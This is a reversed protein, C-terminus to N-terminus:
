RSTFIGTWYTRLVPGRKAEPGGVPWAVEIRTISGTGAPAGARLGVGVAKRWGTSRGFPVGSDWGRGVDVFWVLGVDVAPKFLAPNLRHEAYAVVRSGLPGVDERYGRVGFEGGIISQVPEYRNARADFRVGGVFTQFRSGGPQFYAQFTGSLQLDRWQPTGDPAADLRRAEGRLASTTLLDGWRAGVFGDFRAYTGDTSGGFTDFTRGVIVEVQSGLSVNQIGTVLDLGQGTTFHLRRLGLVIGIRLHSDPNAQDGLEAILSDPAAEVRDFDRSFVARPPGPVTRRLFSAEAGLLKLAGPRGWRGAVRLAAQTERLSLLVHTIREDAGTLYSYEKDRADVSTRFSFRSAESVFPYLVDASMLNGTRTTGLAVSARARTGLFRGTSLRLSRDVQERFDRYRFSLGLGRGLFNTETVYFGMFQLEGEVNVDVGAQTSWEDWTEVRLIWDGDETRDARTEVRAIFSLDRIRRESEALVGADFCDGTGLLMEGRLFTERTRYHIANAFALAWGFRRGEIDGPAFLSHNRIDVGRVVGSLCEVAQGQAPAFSGALALAVLATKM